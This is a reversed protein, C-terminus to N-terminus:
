VNFLYSASMLMNLSQKPDVNVSSVGNGGAIRQNWNYSFQVSTTINDQIKTKLGVGVLGGTSYKTLSFSSDTTTPFGGVVSAVSDKVQLFTVGATLYGLYRDGLTHGLQGTVAFLNSFQITHTYKSVLVTPNSLSFLESTLSDKGPAYNYLGEVGLYVNNDFQHGFGLHLGIGGYSRLDQASPTTTILSTRFHEIKTDIASVLFNGGLYFGSFNPAPMIHTGEAYASTLCLGLMSATTIHRLKM